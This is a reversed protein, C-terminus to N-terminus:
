KSFTVIKDILGYKIAQNCNMVVRRDFDLMVQKFTKKCSKAIIDMMKRNDEIYQDLMKKANSLDSFNTHDHILQNISILSNKTMLRMGPTSAMLILISENLTAGICITEIPSQMMCMTDYIMFINRIDGGESNLFITIKDNSNELDKLLLTAVIDTALRDNIFDSIFIIRDNSLKQYVDILMDGHETTELISYNM